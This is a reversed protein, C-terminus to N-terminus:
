DLKCIELGLDLARKQSAELIQSVTDSDFGITAGKNLLTQRGKEKGYGEGLTVTSSTTVARLTQTFRDIGEALAGLEEKSIQLRGDESFVLELTKSLSDRLLEGGLVVGTVHDDSIDHAYYAEEGTSIPYKGDRFSRVYDEPPIVGTDAFLEAEVGADKLHRQVTIPTPVLTGQETFAFGVLALLPETGTGFSLSPNLNGFQRGYGTPLYKGDNNLVIEMSKDVPDGNAPNTGKIFYEGEPLDDLKGPNISEWPMRSDTSDFINVDAPLNTEYDDGLGIDPKPLVLTDGIDDPNIQENPQIPVDESM